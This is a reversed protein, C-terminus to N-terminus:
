GDALPGVSQLVAVSWLPSAFLACYMAHLDSNAAACGLSDVAWSALLAPGPRALTVGGSFLACWCLRPAPGSAAMFVGSLIEKYCQVLQTDMFEIM